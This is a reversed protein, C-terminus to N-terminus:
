WKGTMPSETYVRVSTTPSRGFESLGPRAGVPIAASRIIV